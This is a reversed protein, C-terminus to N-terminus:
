AGSIGERGRQLRGGVGANAAMNSSVSMNNINWHSMIPFFVSFRNERVVPASVSSVASM